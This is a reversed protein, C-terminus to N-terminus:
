MVAAYLLRYPRIERRTEQEEAFRCDHQEQQTGQIYVIGQQSNCNKLKPMIINNLGNRKAAICSVISSLGSYQGKNYIFLGHTMFSSYFRSKGFVSNVHGFFVGVFHSM